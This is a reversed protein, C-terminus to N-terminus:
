PSKPSTSISRTYSFPDHSPETEMGAAVELLRVRLLYGDELGVESSEREHRAENQEKAHQGKDAARVKEIHAVHDPDRGDRGQAQVDEDAVGPKDRQTMPGEEPHAGIGRGDEGGPKPQGEPDAHRSGTDHGCQRAHDEADRRPPELPEVEGDGGQGALTAITLYLGKLRGSPIGFVMGTLATVIGAAPVCVWFPLGLRTALIAAAYAGVGFFAGHGLSILGTYGILINLGLAAIAAIGIMNCVYLFYPSSVFPLVGFLLILGAMLSLRGFDTEFITIEQAYSEKFNGCPHFSLRRM